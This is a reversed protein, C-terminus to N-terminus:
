SPGCVKSIQHTVRTFEERVRMTDDFVEDNEGAYNFEEFIHEDPSIHVITQDMLSLLVPEFAQLKQTKVEEIKIADIEKFLKRWFSVTRIAELNVLNLNQNSKCIEPITM